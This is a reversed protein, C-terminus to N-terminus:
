EGREEKTMSGDPWVIYRVPTRLRRAHRFMAWTGKLQQLTMGQQTGTFTLVKM